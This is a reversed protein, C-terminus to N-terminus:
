IDQRDTGINGRSLAEPSIHIQIDIHVSPSEQVQPRESTEKSPSAPPTHLPGGQMTTEVIGPSTSFEAEDVLAKFTLVTKRIVQEGASSSTSFVHTLETNSRLQADPYVAYLDAYGKRIANGLDGQAQSWPLFEL